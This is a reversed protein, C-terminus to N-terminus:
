PAGISIVETKLPTRPALHKPKQAINQLVNNIRKDKKNGNYQWDKKSKRNRIIGKTEENKGENSVFLLLTM